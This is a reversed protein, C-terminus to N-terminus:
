WPLVKTFLIPTWIGRWFVVNTNWRVTFFIEVNPNISNLVLSLMFIETVLIKFVRTNIYLSPIGITIVLFIVSQLIRSPSFCKATTLWMKLFSERRILFKTKSFPIWDEREIQCVNWASVNRLSHIGIVRRIRGAHVFSSWIKPM